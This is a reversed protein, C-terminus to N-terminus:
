RISIECQCSSMFSFSIFADLADETGDKIISKINIVSDIKDEM